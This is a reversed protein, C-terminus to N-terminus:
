GELSAMAKKKMKSMREGLEDLEAADFIKRAAPFMEGEEDKIHHEINERMVKFKAPWFEDTPQTLELEGLITDVVNHEEIGELVLAKAKPHTRLEKYFIEEEIQEHVTMQRKIEEFISRRRAAKSEGTKEGDALLQKVTDHDDKLLDIANVAVGEFPVSVAVLRTPPLAGASGSHKGWQTMRFAPPMGRFIGAARILVAPM